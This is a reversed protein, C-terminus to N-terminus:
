TPHPSSSPRPPAPLSLVVARRKQSGHRRPYHPAVPGYKAECPAPFSSQGSSAPSIRRTIAIPAPQIARFKVPDTAHSNAERAKARTAYPRVIAPATPRPAQNVRDRAPRHCTKRSVLIKVRHSDSSRDCERAALMERGHALQAPLPFVALCHPQDGGAPFPLRCLTVQRLALENRNGVRGLDARWAGGLNVTGALSTAMAASTSFRISSRPRGSYTRVAHGSVHTPSLADMGGIWAVLHRFHRVRSSWQRHHHQTAHGPRDPNELRGRARLMARLRLEHSLSQVKPQKALPIGRLQGPPYQPRDSNLPQPSICFADPLKAM